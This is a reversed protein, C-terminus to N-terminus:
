WSTLDESWIDGGWDPTQLPLHRLWKDSMGFLLAYPLLAMFSNNYEEPNNHFNIRDVEATKIYLYLGQIEKLYERGEETLIIKFFYRRDILTITLFLILSTIYLSILLFQQDSNVINGLLITTVFLIPLAIVKTAIIITKSNSKYYGENELDLSLEKFLSELNQALQINEIRKKSDILKRENSISVKNAFLAEYFLNLEYPLDDIPKSTKHIETKKGEKKIKVYGWHALQIIQANTSTISPRGKIFAQIKIINLDERIKNSNKVGRLYNKFRIADFNFGSIEKSDLIIVITLFLVCILIIALSYFLFSYGLGTTKSFNKLIEFEIM